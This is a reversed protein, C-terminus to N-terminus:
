QAVRTLTDSLMELEIAAIEALRGAREDDSLPVVADTPQAALLDRANRYARRAGALDGTRRLLGGLTFYGIACTGDLYVIRRASRIADDLRALAVLLVAHLYHLEVSFPHRELAATCAQEAETVEVNALARVQLACAKANGGLDHLTQAAQRYAGSAIAAEAGALLSESTIGHDEAERPLVIPLPREAPAPRVVLPLLREPARVPEVPKSSEGRRAPARTTRTARRYFVGWDTRTPELDTYESLMPDSSATVIWGDTALCRRLREAVSSVTQRDLYILVNRCFILDMGWTGTDLAPYPDLALNLYAFTVRDRFRADLDYRDPAHADDAGPVHQFYREITAAPVGRLSWGRYSAARATQLSRRSIDTALIYPREPLQAEDLLISLSYGEEGTSCGASWARVAHGPGRRRLIDPLVLERVFAFHQPERFFYTEGITLETVLDDLLAGDQALLAGYAHLDAVGARAMAERVGREVTLRRLQPFVLGTRRAVSEAVAAFGADSWSLESV